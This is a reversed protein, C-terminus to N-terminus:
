QSTDMNLLRLACHTATGIAACAASVHPCVSVCVSVCLIILREHATISRLVLIVPQATACCQQLRSWGNETPSVLSLVAM